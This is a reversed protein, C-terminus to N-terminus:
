WEVIVLGRGGKSSPGPGAGGGPFGGNSGQNGFGGGGGNTGSGGYTTGTEACGGGGGGTGLYDISSFVSEGSDGQGSPQASGNGGRGSIGSGGGANGGGGGGSGGSGGTANSSGNGGKGFLSGVGGGGPLSGLATGGSANFDGGVGAGPTGSAGATASVHTGFSSTGTGVTITETSGVTLGSITKIAFGGGAGAQGSAGNSGAGFLRVRVVGNSEVPITFTADETFVQVRGTGFKGTIPMDASPTITGAVGVFGPNSLYRGM